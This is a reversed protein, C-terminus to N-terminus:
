TMEFEAIDALAYTYGTGDVDSGFAIRGNRDYNYHVETINELTEEKTGSKFYPSTESFKIKVTKM